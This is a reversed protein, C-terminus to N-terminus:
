KDWWPRNRRAKARQRALRQRFTPPGDMLKKGARKLGKFASILSKIQTKTVRKKPPAPKPQPPSYKFANENIPTENFEKIADVMEELPSPEVKRKYKPLHQELEEYVDDDINCYLDELQSETFRGTASKAMATLADWNVVGLADCIEQPTFRVGLALAKNALKAAHDDDEFAFLAEAVESSPGIDELSSTRSVRTSEAWDFVRDYYDVWKM